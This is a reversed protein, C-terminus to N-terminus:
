PPGIKPHLFLSFPSVVSSSIAYVGVTFIANRNLHFGQFSRHEMEGHIHQLSNEVLYRQCVLATLLSNVALRCVYTYHFSNLMNRRSGGCSIVIVYSLVHVKQTNIVVSVLKADCACKAVWLQM